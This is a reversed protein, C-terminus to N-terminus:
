FSQRLDRLYRSGEHLSKKLADRQAPDEVKDATEAIAEFAASLSNYTDFKRNIARTERILDASMFRKQMPHFGKRFIDQFM